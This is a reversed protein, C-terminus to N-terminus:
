IKAVHQFRNDLYPSKLINKGEYTPGLKKKKQIKKGLFSGKFLFCSWKKQGMSAFFNAWFYFVRISHDLGLGNRQPLTGHSGM